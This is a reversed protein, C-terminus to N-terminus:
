RVGYVYKFCKKYVDKILVTKMEHLHVGNLSM